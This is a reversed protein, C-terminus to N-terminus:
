YKLHVIIRLLMEAGDVFHQGSPILPRVEAFGCAKKFRGTGGTVSLHSMASGIRYIGYFNLNDNYEGGELMATFAMMQTSGDASSAVYVGQAKGLPQSGLDPGSTIIDDIVTITGFGYLINEGKLKFDMKSLDEIDVLGRMEKFKLRGLAKALTDVRQESELMCHVKILDYEVYERVLHYLILKVAETKAMNDAECLSLEITEHKSSCRLISSRDIYYINEHWARAMLRTLEIVVM